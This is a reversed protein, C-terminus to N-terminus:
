PGAQPPAPSGLARGARALFEALCPTRLMDGRAFLVAGAEHGLQALVAAPAEEGRTAWYDFAMGWRRGDGLFERLQEAHPGIVLTAKKLGAAALMDVTHEVAPKGAVPLMAPCTDGCLPALERGGRDALIVVRM